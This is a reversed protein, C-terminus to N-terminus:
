VTSLTRIEVVIRGLVQHRDDWRSQIWGLDRWGDGVAPSSQTEKGGDSSQGASGSKPNKFRVAELEKKAQKAIEEEEMLRSGCM